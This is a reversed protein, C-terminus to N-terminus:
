DSNLRILHKIIYITNKDENWFYYCLAELFWVMYSYCIKFGTIQLYSVLQKGFFWCLYSINERIMIVKGHLM